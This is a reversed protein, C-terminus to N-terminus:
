AFQYFSVASGVATPQCFIQARTGLPLSISGGAAVYGGQLVGSGVHRIWVPNTTDQNTIIVARRGQLYRTNAPNVPNREDLWTTVGNTLAVSDVRWFDFTEEKTRIVSKGLAEILARLQGTLGALAPDEPNFQKIGQMGPSYTAPTGAQQQTTVLTRPVPMRDVPLFLSAKRQSFNGEPSYRLGRM